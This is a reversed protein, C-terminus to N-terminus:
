QVRAVFTAKTDHALEDSLVVRKGQVTAKGCAACTFERVVDGFELTLGRIAEKGVTVTGAYGSGDYTAEIRTDLRARWFAGIEDLTHTEVDLSAARGLFADLAELKHRLNEPPLDHGRSPHLLLTTYARNQINRLLTYDWLTSFRARNSPQLEVRHVAGGVSEGIGDELAIPFELLPAHEFRNQHFGVAALDVPLNFALDGIGFSSDYAFGLKALLAFLHPPLALYPSRWVSPPHGMIQSVLDRSIKIEGCVTLTAPAGYSARTENCTGPPLKGFGLVHTVSHAGLPCLGRDCLSKMTEPNYYGAVYDTTINFSARVGRLKELDAAQVVGPPGWEGANDADPADVDHTILLVSSKASPVTHVLVVHGAASERFMGDLVLRLVDGAPEFCNVYCRPADFTSLDHGFAYVAGKGLPRRTVVPNADAGAFAHAVVQTGAASDPELMYAEVGDAAVRANIELTREEPSDLDHVAPPREGDFRVEVVDRRRTTSRLGTLKWAQPEEPKGVPKFVAVVGGKRAFDELSERAHAGLAEGVLYGPIVALSYRDLTALAATWDTGPVQTDFPIGAQALAAVVDAIDPEADGWAYRPAVVLARPRVQVPPVDDVKGDCDNDVGDFVEPMPAPAFCVRAGRECAAFGAGCAGPSSTTCANPGVPLLVDVLGDGDDDVGNCATEITADGYRATPPAPAPDGADPLAPPTAAIRAGSVGAVDSAVAPHASPAGHGGDPACGSALAAGLAGVAAGGRSWRIM